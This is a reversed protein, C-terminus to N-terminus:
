RRKRSRLWVLLGAAAALVLVAGSAGAVIAQKMRPPDEVNGRPVFDDETFTVIRHGTMPDLDGDGDKDTSTDTGNKQTMEHLVPADGIIIGVHNLVSREKGEAPANLMGGLKEVYLTSSGGGDLNIADWAGLEILYEAMRAPNISKSGEVRGESVVMYLTTGDKSVGIASRPHEMCVYGCGRVKGVKGGQVIMPMGAIAMWAQDSPPLTDAGPPEIWAKGDSTIALLATRDDPVYGQWPRGASVVPGIPDKTVLKWFGGNIAVQAGIDRAFKSTRNGRYRPPSVVVHVDPLSLDVIATFFRIMDGTEPDPWEEVIVKVGKYPKKVQRTADAAQSSFGICALLALAAALTIEHRM